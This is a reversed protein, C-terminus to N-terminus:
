LVLYNHSITRITPSSGVHSEDCPGLGQTDVMEGCGCLLTIHLCERIENYCIGCM